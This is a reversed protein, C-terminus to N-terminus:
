AGGGKVKALKDLTPHWAEDRWKAAADQWDQSEKTWDGGGANAIITWAWELADVLSKQAAAANHRETALQTTTSKLEDALEKTAEAIAADLAGEFNRCRTVHADVEAQAAALQRHTDKLKEHLENSDKEAAALQRELTAITDTAAHENLALQERLQQIDKIRLDMQYEFHRTREREAALATTHADAVRKMGDHHSALERVTNETWEGSPQDSTASV